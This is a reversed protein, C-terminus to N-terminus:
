IQIRTMNLTMVKLLGELYEKVEKDTPINEMSLEERGFNHIHQTRVADPGADRVVKFRDLAENLYREHWKSFSSGKKSIDIRRDVAM